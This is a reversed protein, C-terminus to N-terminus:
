HARSLTEWDRTGDPDIVEPDFFIELEVHTQTFATYGKGVITTFLMGLAFLAVGIALIGYAQFRWEAAYRKKLRAEFQARTYTAPPAQVADTM